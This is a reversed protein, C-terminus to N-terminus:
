MAQAINFGAQIGDFGFEIVEAKSSGDCAIGQGYGILLAVPSDISVECVNENGMSALEISVITEGDLQILGDVSEIGGGDIKTEREKRPRFEPSAFRGDFEM